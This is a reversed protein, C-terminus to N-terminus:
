GDNDSEIKDCVNKRIETMTQFLLCNCYLYVIGFVGLLCVCMYVCM